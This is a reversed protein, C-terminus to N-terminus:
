RFLPTSYDARRAARRESHQLGVFLDFLSHAAELTPVKALIEIRPYDSRHALVVFYGDVGGLNDDEVHESYTDPDIPSIYLTRNQDLTTHLVMEDM